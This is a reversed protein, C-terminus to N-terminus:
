PGSAIQQALIGADTRADTQLKQLVGLQVQTAIQDKTYDTTTSGVNVDAIASASAQTNNQDIADNQNANQLAVMQAGVQARAFGLNQLANDVTLIGYRTTMDDTSVGGVSTYDTMEPQSVTLNSIGLASSSIQPISISIISGESSGFNVQAAQGTGAPTNPFTQIAEVAGVDQSTLNSLNFTLAIYTQNGNLVQAVAPSGGDAITYNEPIEQTQNVEPGWSPDTSYARTQVVLSDTTADFGTVSVEVLCGPINFGLSPSQMLPGPDTPTGLGYADVVTSTVLAANPGLSGMTAQVVAEAQVPIARPVTAPQTDLSGDLLIRNDFATSGGITNIQSKLQDLETQIMQLDSPTNLGSAAEVLLSRMRQLLSTASGM